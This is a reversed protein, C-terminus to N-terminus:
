VSQEKLGLGLEKLREEYELGRLEIIMKTAMKQIGEVKNIQHNLNPLHEVVKKKAFILNILKKEQKVFLM